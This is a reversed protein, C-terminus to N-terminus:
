RALSSFYIRLCASSEPKGALRIVSILLIISGVVAEQDSRRRGRGSMSAAELRAGRLVALGAPGSELVAPAALPEGGDVADGATAGALLAELM